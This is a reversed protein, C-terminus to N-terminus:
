SVPVNNEIKDNGSFGIFIDVFFRCFALLYEDNRHFGPQLKKKEYQVSKGFHYYSSDCGSNCALCTLWRYHIFVFVICEQHTYNWQAM